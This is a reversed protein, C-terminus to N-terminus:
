DSLYIEDAKAAFNTKKKTRPKIFGVLEDLPGKIPKKDHILQGLNAAIADIVMRIIASRELKIEEEFSDIKEVSQPNLYVQYRKM